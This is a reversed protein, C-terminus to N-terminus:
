FLMEKTPQKPHSREWLFKEPTGGNRDYLKWLESRSIAPNSRYEKETM